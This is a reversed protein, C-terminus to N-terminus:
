DPLTIAGHTSNPTPVEATTLDSGHWWTVREALLAPGPTLTGSLSLGSVETPRGRSDADLAVAAPAGGHLDFGAPLSLPLGAGAGARWVAPALRVTDGDLAALVVRRRGTLARRVDPPVVTPLAPAIGPTLAPPRVAEVDDLVVRVVVRNRPLFRSPIRPADALYGAISAANRLALVALAASITPGHLVLGRPDRASFVRARGSAVAGSGEDDAPAVYLACQTDRALASVKMGRAPTSMWVATGDFWYAMPSLVPGRAGHLGLLCRSGRELVDRGGV